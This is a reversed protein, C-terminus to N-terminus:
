NGEKKEERGRETEKGIGNGGPIAELTDDDGQGKKESVGL